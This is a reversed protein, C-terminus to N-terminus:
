AAPRLQEIRQGLEIMKDEDEVYRLRGFLYQVQDNAVSDPTSEDGAIETLADIAKELHRAVGQGAVDRLLGHLATIRGTLNAAQVRSKDISAYGTQHEKLLNVLTYPAKLSQMYIHWNQGKDFIEKIAVPDCSRKFLAEALKLRAGIHLYQAARALVLGGSVGLLENMADFDTDGPYVEKTLGNLVKTAKLVAEPDEAGLRDSPVKGDAQAVHYARAATSEIVDLGEETKELKGITKRRATQFFGSVVGSVERAEGLLAPLDAEKRMRRAIKMFDVFNMNAIALETDEGFYHRVIKQTYTSRREVERAVHPAMDDLVGFQLDLNVGELRDLVESYVKIDHMSASVVDAPSPPPLEEFSTVVEGVAESGPSTKM